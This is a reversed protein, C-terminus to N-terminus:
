EVFQQLNAIESATYVPKTASKAWAYVDGAVAQIWPLERFYHVGDGVKIGIAPPTYAPTSNSEEITRANTVSAVAMEGQKLILNSNMWNNYNDYRLLIRTELVHEAV